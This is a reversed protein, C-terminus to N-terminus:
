VARVVARRERWAAVVGAAVIIGGGLMTPLDTSEDFFLVAIVSVFVLQFYAFPQVASAEAMEYCKILLFHGLVGTVCLMAMWRWDAGSMPEWSWIGIGTAAVAGVTGTWFFSTAASDRRAAFRTVLGYVAFMLAALVAILAEPAFVAFGPRLIVLMGIFGAGIAAWRWPGVREGLVPGSLAAVMLPYAAFVAHTAILGLKVFAFVTVWIEAVLLVARFGQVIPQATAAVRRIGGKERVAVAIVFLAFFWYRIMIIMIVNYQEALHRSVGDQVAFVFVAAIMLLVGARTNAHASM